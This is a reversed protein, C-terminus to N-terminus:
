QLLVGGELIFSFYVEGSQWLPNIDYLGDRGVLSLKCLTDHFPLGHTLLGLFALIPSRVFTLVPMIQAHGGGSQPKRDPQECSGVTPGAERTEVAERHGAVM